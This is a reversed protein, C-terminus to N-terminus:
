RWRRILIAGAAVIGIEATIWVLQRTDPDGDLAFGVLRAAGIGFMAWALLGVISRKWPRLAPLWVLFLGIGLLTGGWSARLNIWQTNTLHPLGLANAVVLPQLVLYAGALALLTGAVVQFSTRPVCM